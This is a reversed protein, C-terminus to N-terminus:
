AWKLLNIAQTERLDKIMLCITAESVGLEEAMSSRPWDLIMMDFLALLNRKGRQPLKALARRIEQIIETSEVKDEIRTTPINVLDLLIEGGGDESIAGISLPVYAHIPDRTRKSVQQLVRKTIFNYMFTSFKAKRPDYIDFYRGEYFQMFVLSKIDELDEGRFGYRRSIMEIRGSWDAILDEFTAPAGQLVRLKQLEEDSMQDHGYKYATVEAVTM